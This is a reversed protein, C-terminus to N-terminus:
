AYHLIEPSTPQSILDYPKQTPSPCSVVQQADLQHLNSCHRAVVEIRFRSPPHLGCCPNGELELHQLATLQQLPKLDDLGVLRCKCQWTLFCAHAIVHMDDLSYWAARVFGNAQLVDPLLTAATLDARSCEQIHIINILAPPGYVTAADDCLTYILLNKGCRNNGLALKRLSAPLLSGAAMSSKANTAAALEPLLTAIYNRSLSLDELCTLTQLSCLSTIRNGALNLRRLGTLTTVGLPEEILNSQLDLVELSTM